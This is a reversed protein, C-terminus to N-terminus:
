MKVMYKIPIIYRILIYRVKLSFSPMNSLDSKNGTIKDQVFEWLFNRNNYIPHNIFIRLCNRLNEKMNSFSIEPILTQLKKNDFLRNFERDYILQYNDNEVKVAHNLLGLTLCDVICNLLIDRFSCIFSEVLIVKPRRGTIKEMEELYLNMIEKWTYSKNDVVNVIQGLTRYNCVISSIFKSVDSGYALTTKKELFAKPFAVDKKELFRKLWTEKEWVGLPLRNEAFTIYPRLITYNNYGSELILNEERAKYLAYEDTKLYKKDNTKELLRPSQEDLPSDSDAYVRASSLFVYQKTSNMLMELRSKFESTGYVMFDIISDWNREALIPDIFLPDRANGLYYHINKENNHTKRSTIYV